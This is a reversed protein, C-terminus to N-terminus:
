APKAGLAKKVMGWLSVAVRLDEVAFAMGIRDCMKLSCADDHHSPEHDTQM